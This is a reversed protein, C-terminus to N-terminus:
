LLIWAQQSCWWATGPDLDARGHLWSLRQDNVPRGYSSARDAHMYPFPVRHSSSDYVHAAVWGPQRIFTQNLWPLETHMALDSNM